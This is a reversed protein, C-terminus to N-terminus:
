KKGIYLIEKPEIGFYHARDGLTSAFRQGEALLGARKIRDAYDRGFKRVHDAQGFAKERARPETVTADEYTTEPVPHFFPVQLIAYGGPKLVRHIERMAQIDDAVHELVHNCLVVDFTNEAFPIQHLDMKVKALPSEIDATIYADGHQKQFPHMFCHEPAVHLVHQPRAFFDTQERLYLWILRHRELSQCHPCLANPRPNIRGYPLFQRYRHDCIPCQVNRGRYFLGLVRLGIGSVRQLYSRPVFRILWSILKKM